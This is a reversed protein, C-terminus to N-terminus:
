LIEEHFFDSDSGCNQCECSALGESLGSRSRSSAGGSGTSGTSTSSTSTSGTNTCGSAQAGTGQNSDAGGYCSNASGSRIRVGAGGVVSGAVV